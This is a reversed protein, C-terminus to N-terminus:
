QNTQGVPIVKDQQTNVEEKDRKRQEKSGKRQFTAWEM